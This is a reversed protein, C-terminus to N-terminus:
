ESIAEGNETVEVDDGDDDNMIFDQKGEYIEHDDEEISRSESGTEESSESRERQITSAWDDLNLGDDYDYGHDNEEEDESGQDDSDLTLDIVLRESSSSV